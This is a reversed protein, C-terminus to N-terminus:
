YNMLAYYQKRHCVERSTALSQTDVLYALINILQQVPSSHVLFKFCNDLSEM